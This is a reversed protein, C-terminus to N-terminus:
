KGKPKAPSAKVKTAAAKKAEAKKQQGYSYNLEKILQDTVDFDPHVWGGAFAEVVTWNGSKGVKQCAASLDKAFKEQAKNGEEYMVRQREQMLRMYVDNSKKQFAELEKEAAAKADDKMTSQANRIEKEKKGLKESIDRIQADIVAAKEKVTQSIDQISDLKEFGSPDFKAVRSAPQAAKTAAVEAVADFS